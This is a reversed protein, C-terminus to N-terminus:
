KTEFRSPKYKRLLRLKLIYQQAENHTKYAKSVAIGNRRMCVVHGFWYTEIQYQEM